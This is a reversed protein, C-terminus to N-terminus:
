KKAPIFWSKGGLRIGLGSLSAEVELGRVGVREIPVFCPGPAGDLYGLTILDLSLHVHTSEGCSPCTFYAWKQNPWSVSCNEILAETEIQKSCNPCTHMKNM